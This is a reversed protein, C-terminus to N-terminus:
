LYQGILVTQQKQEGNEYITTTKDIVEGARNYRITVTETKVVENEDMM